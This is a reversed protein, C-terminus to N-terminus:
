DIGDEDDHFIIKECETISMPVLECASRHARWRGGSICGQVKGNM